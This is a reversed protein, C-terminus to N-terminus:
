CFTPQLKVDQKHKNHLYAVVQITYIAFDMHKESLCVWSYHETFTGKDIASKSCKQKNNFNRKLGKNQFTAKQKAYEKGYKM